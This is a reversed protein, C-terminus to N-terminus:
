NRTPVCAVMFPRQREADRWAAGGSEVRARRPSSRAGAPQAGFRATRWRGECRCYSGSGDREKGLGYGRRFLPYRPRCGGAGGCSGVPGKGAAVSGPFRDGLVWPGEGARTWGAGAPPQGSNPRVAAPRHGPAVNFFPFDKRTGGQLQYSLYYFHKPQKKYITYCITSFDSFHLVMKKSEPLSIGCSKNNECPKIRYIKLM